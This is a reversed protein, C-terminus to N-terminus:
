CTRAALVRMDVFHIGAFTLVRTPQLGIEQQLWVPYGWCASSVQGASLLQKAAHLQGFAGGPAGVRWQRRLAMCGSCTRGPAALPM